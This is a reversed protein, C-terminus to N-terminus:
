ETLSNELYAWVELRRMFPPTLPPNYVASAFRTIKMGDAAVAAALEAKKRDFKKDSYFGSFQMVAVKQAPVERLNIADDKPQPLDNLDYEAPVVFAFTRLEEGETEIVPATMAIKESETEIVPTTMAIKQQSINEGFIYGALIEFALNGSTEFTGDINVEAVIHPALERIEYGDRQEVVTYSLQEVRSAFYGFLVWAILGVAM